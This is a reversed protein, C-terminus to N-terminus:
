FMTVIRRIDSVCTAYKWVTFSKTSGEACQNSSNNIEPLAFFRTYDSMYENHETVDRVLPALVGTIMRALGFLAGVLSIYLGHSMTNGSVSPLLMFVAIVALATLILQCASIASEDIAIAKTVLNSRKLHTASFKSNIDDAYGFLTREAATERGALISSLYYHKRTLKTSIRFMEYIKRGGQRAIFVIPITSIVFLPIIWWIHAALLLSVGFVQIIIRVLNLSSGLIAMMHGEATQGKTGESVRSFLDLNEPNELLAFPIHSHKYLLQRRLNEKLANELKKNAIRTFIGSAQSYAYYVAMLVITIIVPALQGDGNVYLVANNIFSAMVLVMLPMLVGNIIEVLLKASADIPAYQFCFRIASAISYKKHQMYKGRKMKSM